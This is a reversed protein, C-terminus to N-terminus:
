TIESIYEVYKSLEQLFYQAAPSENSFSVRLVRKRPTERPEQMFSFHRGGDLKVLRIWAPKKKKGERRSRRSIRRRRKLFHLHFQWRMRACGSACNIISFLCLMTLCYLSLSLSSLPHLTSTSPYCSILKPLREM